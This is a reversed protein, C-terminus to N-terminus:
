SAERGNERIMYPLADRSLLVRGLVWNVKNPTLEVGVRSIGLALGM